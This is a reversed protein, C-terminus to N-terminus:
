NLEQKLKTRANEECEYYENLHKIKIHTKLSSVQKCEYWKIQEDDLHKAIVHTKLSSKYKTRYPCENCNYWKVDEDKLYKDKTHRNLYTRNKAKFPYKDCKYWEVHEEALHKQNLHVRFTSKWRCKFPCKECAYRKSLHCDAVHHLANNKCKGQYTCEACNHWRIKNIQKFDSNFTGSENPFSVSQLNQKKRTCESSHQIKKLSLNTEFNCKNCVYTRIRFDNSSSGKRSEKNIGHHKNIHKKFQLTLKTKFKCDKCFYAEIKAKECMFKELSSRHRRVHNLMLFFSTSFYPCLKCNHVNKWSARGQAALAGSYELISM